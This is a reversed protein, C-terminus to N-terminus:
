RSRNDPPQRFFDLYGREMTTIGRAIARRVVDRLNEGPDSWDRDVRAEGYLGVAIDRHAKGALYGDLAELVFANRTCRPHPPFFNEPLSGTSRVFRFGELLRLQRQAHHKPLKTDVFLAVPDTLPAGSVALQLSQM